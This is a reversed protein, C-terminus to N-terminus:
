KKCDFFGFVTKFSANHFGKQHLLNNLKELKEKLMRSHKHSVVQPRVMASYKVTGHGDIGNLYSIDVKRGGQTYTEKFNMGNLHIPKWTAISGGFVM